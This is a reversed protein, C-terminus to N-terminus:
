YDGPTHSTFTLTLAGPQGCDTIQYRTQDSQIQPLPQVIIGSPVNLDFRLPTGDNANCGNSDGAPTNNSQQVTYTIQTSASGTVADLIITVNNNANNKIDNQIIDAFVIKPILFLLALIFAIPLFRHTRLPFNLKQM